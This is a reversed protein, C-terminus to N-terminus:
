EAKTAEKDQVEFTEIQNLAASAAEIVDALDKKDFYYSNQWKKEGDQYSRHIATTYRVKGADQIHRFIAAKVRNRHEDWVPGHHSSENTKTGAPETGAVDMNKQAM